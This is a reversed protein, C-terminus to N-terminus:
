VVLTETPLLPHNLIFEKKKKTSQMQFFDYSSDTIWPIVEKKTFTEYVSKINKLSYSFLLM